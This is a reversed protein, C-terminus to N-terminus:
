ILAKVEARVLKIRPWWPIGFGGEPPKKTQPIGGALVHLHVM